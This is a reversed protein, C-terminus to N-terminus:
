KRRSWGPRSSSVCRSRSKQALTCAAMTSTSTVLVIRAAFRSLTPPLWLRLVELLDLRARSSFDHVNWLTDIQDHLAASVAPHRQGLANSFAGSTFDICVRGEDDWLRSGEGRVFVRAGIEAEESVGPALFQSEALQAGRKM